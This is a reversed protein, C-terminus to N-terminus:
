TELRPLNRAPTLELDGRDAEFRHYAAPMSRVKRQKVAILTAQAAL